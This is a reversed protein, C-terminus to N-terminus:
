LLAADFFYFTMKGPRKHNKGIIIELFTSGLEFKTVKRDKTHGV